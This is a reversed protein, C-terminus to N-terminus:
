KPPKNHGGERGCMTRFVSPMDSQQQIDTNTASTACVLFIKKHLNIIFINYYDLQSMTM